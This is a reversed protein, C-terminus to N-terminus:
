MADKVDAPASWERLGSRAPAGTWSCTPRLGRASPSASPGLVVRGGPRRPRTTADRSDVPSVGGRNRVTWDGTTAPAVPAAVTGTGILAGRTGDPMQLYVSVTNGNTISATGSIRWETKDTRFQAAATM